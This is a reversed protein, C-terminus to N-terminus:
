LVRKLIGLVGRIFAASTVVKLVPNMRTSKRKSTSKSKAIERKTIKDIKETLIEYASNRDILENYKFYM